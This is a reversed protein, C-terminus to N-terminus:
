HTSRRCLCRGSFPLPCGDRRVVFPERHFAQGVVHSEKLESVSRQLEERRAGACRRLAASARRGAERADRELSSRPARERREPLHAIHGGRLEHDLEVGLKAEGVHRASLGELARLPLRQLIKGVVVRAVPRGENQDAAPELGDGAPRMSRNPASSGSGRVFACPERVESRRPLLRRPEESPDSGKEHRPADGARRVWPSAVDGSPPPVDTGDGKRPDTLREADALRPEGSASAPSRQAVSYVSELRWDSERTDPSRPNWRFGARRCSRPEAAKSLLSWSVAVGGPTPRKWDARADVSFHLSS